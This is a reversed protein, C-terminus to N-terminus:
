KLVEAADAEGQKASLTMYASLKTWTQKGVVGDDKLGHVRQFEKVADRTQPGLKGDVPGQYFGANKLAQQIERTSPKMSVKAAAEPKAAKRPKAAGSPVTAPAIPAIATATQAAQQSPLAATTVSEHARELQGVREDLVGIQSQLRAVDQRSGGAACGGLLSAVAVLTGIRYWSM